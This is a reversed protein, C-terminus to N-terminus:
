SLWCCKLIEALCFFFTKLLSLLSSSVFVCFKNSNVRFPFRASATYLSPLFSESTSLLFYVFVAWCIIPLPTGARCANRGNVFTCAFSLSQVVTHTMLAPSGRGALARSELGLCLILSILFFFFFAPSAMFRVSTGEALFGAQKPGSHDPDALWPM